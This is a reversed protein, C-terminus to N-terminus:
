RIWVSRARQSTTVSAITSATESTTAAQEPTPSIPSSLWVPPEGPVEPPWPPDLVPEVPVPPVCTISGVLPPLVVQYSVNFAVLQEAAGAASGGVRMQRKDAGCHFVVTAWASAPEAGSTLAKGLSAVSGTVPKLSSEVPLLTVSGSADAYKSALSAADVFAAGATMLAIGQRPVAGM